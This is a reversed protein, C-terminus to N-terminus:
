YLEGDYYNLLLEVVKNYQQMGEEVGNMKLTTETFANSVKKVTETKVVAKKEVETWNEKTM